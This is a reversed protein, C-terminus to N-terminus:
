LMVLGIVAAALKRSDHRWPTEEDAVDAQAVRSASGALALEPRIIDVGSPPRFAPDVRSNALVVDILDAGIHKEIAQVHDGLTFRDTEGRETAVNGVYVCTASTRRVAEAIGRVLLNPMVSTFLSGPGIVVLDAELIAKVAEPYAPADGPELWVREIPYGTKGISSEGRVPATPLSADPAEAGAAATMEEAALDRLEACLTVDALTSPLIRGKTALVKSSEILAREFSGTLEAMAAIFLNGFSHGSLGEGAGFRYQFLQAVLSEDKALAAICMRFDGPPLVGLERRLRGSSGGDDAVTVIATINSTHEKLGRLLASLGHGGGIAVVKPGQSSIRQDWLKDLLPQDDAGRVTEVISRNFRYFGYLFASLGLGGVLVARAARDLFQLTLYYFFEPVETARYIQVQIYGIGLGIFAMGFIMLVLWRKVRLGPILWRLHRRPLRPRIRLRREDANMPPQM